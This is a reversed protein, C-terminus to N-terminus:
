LLNFVLIGAIILANGLLKNKTLPERFFLFCLVVVWINGTMVMVTGSKVEVGHAYGFVGILMSFFMLGYGAIVKFNLYEEIASEHKEMASKKLLIQAFAAVLASLAFCFVWPDFSNGM